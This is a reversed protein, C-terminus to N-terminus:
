LREKELSLVHGGAMGDEVYYLKASQKGYKLVKIYEPSRLMTPCDRMPMLKESFLFTMIECYVLSLAWALVLLIVIAILVM